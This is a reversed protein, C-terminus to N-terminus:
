AAVAAELQAVTAPYNQELVTSGGCEVCRVVTVDAAPIGDNPRPPKRAAYAEVRGGPCGRLHDRDDLLEALAEVRRASAEAEAGELKVASDATLQASAEALLAARAEPDLQDLTVAGTNAPEPAPTEPTTKQRTRPPM